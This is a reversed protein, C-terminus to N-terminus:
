EIIKYKNKKRASYAFLTYIAVDSQKSQEILINM